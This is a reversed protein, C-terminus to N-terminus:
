GLLRTTVCFCHARERLCERSHPLASFLRPELGFERARSSAVDLQLALHGRVLGCARGLPLALGIELGGRTRDVVRAVVEVEQKAAQHQIRCSGTEGVHNEHGRVSSAAVHGIRPARASDNKVQRRSKFNV